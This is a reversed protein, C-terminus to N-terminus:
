PGNEEALLRLLTASEVPKILHGDFGAAQTRQRDEPQGWGSLAIIRRKLGGPQERLIRCAGYGDLRPMGLDMLVIEPSERAVTEIAELGDYVGRYGHLELVQALSDAIDRQDDVVLVHRRTPPRIPDLAPRRPSPASSPHPIPLSVRFTSGQGLGASDATLCGGHMEVLGRALALGIGLGGQANKRSSGIQVFLDFLRPLDEPAIGIGNDRVEIVVADEVQIAFLHIHGGPETYKRANELLNVLIQTLRVPDADLEIAEPPLTVTLDHGTQAITPRALELVQELLAALDIRERRLRLKGLTIRSVDLLDDVLHVLHRSQREIMACAQQQVPNGLGTLQLIEVANRIPALPNRLEHSLTALFEDKRRDIERLAEEAHRRATIDQVLFLMSALNGTREYIASSHWVCDLITGDKRLNRHTGITRSKTGDIMAALRTEVLVLDDPHIWDIDTVRREIVEEATWGFLREAAQSWRILRLRPDLEIVALPLNEIHAGLRELLRHRSRALRDMMQDLAQALVGIEDQRALKLRAEQAENAGLATAQATLRSLPNLIIRRLGLLLLFFALGLAGAVSLNAVWLAKRGQASIERPTAVRLTLAPHGDLGTLTTEGVLTAPTETLTIPTQVFGSPEAPGSASRSEPPPTSVSLNVRAQTGLRAIAEADLLRALMVHGIPPGEGASTLAPMAVVLFPGRPTQFLGLTAKPTEDGADAQRPFHGASIRAPMLTPLELPQEAGLDYAMGWILDGAQDYFAMANVALGQLTDLNLNSTLYGQNRDKLFRYTDDWLAWDNLTLALLELERRLPEVARGLNRTAQARELELFRPYVVLHQIGYQSITAVAFIALLLLVIRNLLSM